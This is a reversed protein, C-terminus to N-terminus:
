PNHTRFNISNIYEGQNIKLFYGLNRISLSFFTIGIGTVARELAYTQQRKTAPTAPEFGAQPM